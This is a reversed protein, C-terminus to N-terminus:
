AAWYHVMHPRSLGTKALNDADLNLDQPVHCLTLSNSVISQISKGRISTTALIHQGRQIAEIADLSDSCIIVKSQPLGKLILIKVMHIIALLQSELANSSKVTGSFTHRISGDKSKVWGAIGGILNKHANRGWAGDVACTLNFMSLKHTWFTLNCKHLHLSVAGIPNIKWLADFGFDLVSSAKM